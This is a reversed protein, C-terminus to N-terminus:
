KSNDRASHTAAGDALFEIPSDDFSVSEMSWAVLAVSVHQPAEVNVAVAAARAQNPQIGLVDVIKLMGLSGMGSANTMAM